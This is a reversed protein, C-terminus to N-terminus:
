AFVKLVPKLQPTVECKISTKSSMSDPFQPSQYVFVEGMRPGVPVQDAVDAHNFVNGQAQGHLIGGTTCSM